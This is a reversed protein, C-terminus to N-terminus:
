WALIKRVLVHKPIGKVIRLRGDEDICEIIKNYSDINFKHYELWDKGILVDYSGLPLVNLNVM